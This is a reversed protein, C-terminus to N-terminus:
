KRGRSQLAELLAPLFCLRLVHFFNTNARMPKLPWTLQECCKTDRAFRHAGLMSEKCRSRVAFVVVSACSTVFAALCLRTTRSPLSLLSSM